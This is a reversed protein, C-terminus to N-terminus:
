VAIVVKGRVHRQENEDQVAALEALPRETTKLPVMKGSDFLGTFEDLQEGNPAVFVFTNKINKAKGKEADPASVISVLVGDQKVVDWSQEQTDGGVTDFVVDVGNPHLKQVEEVFSQSRYDIVVDAGLSKVYDHNGASATTIVTAGKNKALQIAWGGVGGAGAHILAVQGSVLNAFGFLSQHATLAALPVGAAQAHTISKPKLAVHEEGFTVYEAFAGHKVEPKRVYAYVEDGVKFKSAGAGLAEVTGSVEWGLIIPFNHPIMDKLYGKRIKWDVPNVGAFAVKILVEKEGAEPKAADEVIKLVSSAGFEEIIAARM